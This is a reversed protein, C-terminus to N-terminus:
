SETSIPKNRRKKILVAAGIIGATTAGGTAASAVILQPPISFPLDSEVVTLVVESLFNIDMYGEAAGEIMFLIVHKLVHDGGSLIGSTMNDWSRGGGATYHGVLGEVRNTLCSHYTRGRKVGDLYSTEELYSDCIGTYYIDVSTTYNKIRNATATGKTSFEFTFSLIEGGHLRYATENLQIGSCDIRPTIVDGNADINLASVYGYAGVTVILVTLCVAVLLVKRSVM